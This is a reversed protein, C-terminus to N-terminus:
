LVAASLKALTKPGAIGDPTLGHSKQFAIVAAETGYGFVGDPKGPQFGFRILDLQLNAVAEGREGRRLIGDSLADDAPMSVRGGSAYIGMSLLRAEDARRTVLGALRVGKATVATTRLKEAAAQYDGAKALKAWDWGLAGAGCNFAVSVMADFVNQPVPRGLFRTVAADYEADALYVLVDDAEARTMTAGPGFSQGPRHKGWWDKFASSAWTFGVGITGVGVADRYFHDVFGEHLRIDAAGQASLRM